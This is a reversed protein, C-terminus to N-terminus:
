QHQGDNKTKFLEDAM